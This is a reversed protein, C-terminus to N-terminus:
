ERQRAAGPAAPQAATITYGPGSELVRGPTAHALGTFSESTLVPEPRKIQAEPPVPPEDAATGEGAQAVAHEAGAAEPGPAPKSAPAPQADERPASAAPAAVIEDARVTRLEGSGKLRVTFTRSQQDAAVVELTKNRELAARAWGMEDQGERACAVLILLGVCGLLKGMPAEKAPRYVAGSGYPLASVACSHAYCDPLTALSRRLASFFLGWLTPGRPIRPIPPRTGRRELYAGPLSGARM